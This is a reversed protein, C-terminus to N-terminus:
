RPSYTYVQNFRFGGVGCGLLFFYVLLVLILTSTEAVLYSNLGYSEDGVRQSHAKRAASMMGGAVSLSQTSQLM